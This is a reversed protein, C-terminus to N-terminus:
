EFPRQRMHSTSIHLFESDLIPLLCLKPKVSYCPAHVAYTHCAAWLISTLQACSKSPLLYVNDADAHLM